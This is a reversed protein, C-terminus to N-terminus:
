RRPRRIVTPQTSPRAAIADLVRCVALHLPDRQEKRHKVFHWRHADLSASAKPVKVACVQRKSEDRLTIIM